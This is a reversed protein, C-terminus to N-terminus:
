SKDEIQFEGRPLIGKAKLDALYQNARIQSTFSLQLYNAKIQELQAKTVKPKKNKDEVTEDPTVVPNEVTGQPNPNSLGSNITDAIKPIDVKGALNSLIEDIAELSADKLETTEGGEGVIVAASNDLLKTYDCIKQIKMDKTDPLSKKM